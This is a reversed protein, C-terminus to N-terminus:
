IAYTELQSVGHETCALEQLHLNFINECSYRLTKQQHQSETIM